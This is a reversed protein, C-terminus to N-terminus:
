GIPQSPRSGLGQLSDFDLLADQTLPHDDLLKKNGPRSVPMSQMGAAVAADVENLNDSLFLWEAVALSPYSSAIKSYSAADTKPGANVTDFWDSILPKLDSPDADTHGFLLKQAAVSGSSYIMIRLGAAHWAFMAPGVDPFLPAKLQGNRYGEEWLYGQLAKLYPTKADRSM